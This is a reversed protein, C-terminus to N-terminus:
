DEGLGGDHSYALNIADHCCPLLAHDHKAPKELHTVSNLNCTRIDTCLNALSSM